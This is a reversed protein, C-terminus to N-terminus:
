FNINCIQVNDIQFKYLNACECSHMCETITAAEYLYGKCIGCTIYENINAIPVWLKHNDDIRNKHPVTTQSDPKLSTTNLNSSDIM